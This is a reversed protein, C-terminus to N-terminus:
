PAHVPGAGTGVLAAWSAMQSGDNVFCVKWDTDLPDGDHDYGFSGNAIAPGTFCLYGGIAWTGGQHGQGHANFPGQIYPGGAFLNVSWGPPINFNTYNVLFTDEVAVIFKDTTGNQVTVSYKYDLAAPGGCTAGLCTVTASPNQAFVPACLAVLVLAITLILYLWKM